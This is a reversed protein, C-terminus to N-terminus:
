LYYLVGVELCTDHKTDLNNCAYYTAYIPYLSNILM